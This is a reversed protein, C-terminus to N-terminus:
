LKQLEALSSIIADPVLTHKHEGRDILVSYIAANRATLIDEDSNGVYITDMRESGLLRLCETAGMPHPKPTIGTLPSAIVIADFVSRDILGLEMEAIAPPSGTFLALKHGAKKLQSLYSIDDFVITYPKRKKPLDHKRFTNWFKDPNLGWQILLTERNPMFWFRDIHDKSITKGFEALVAALLQYRYEPKVSLLTGDLDFIFSKM